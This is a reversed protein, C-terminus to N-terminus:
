SQRHVKRGLEEFFNFVHRPLGGAEVKACGGFEPSPGVEAAITLTPLNGTLTVGHRRCRGHRRHHGQPGHSRGRHHRHPHHGPEDNRRSRIPPLSTHMTWPFVTM